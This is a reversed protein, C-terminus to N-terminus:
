HHNVTPTTRKARGPVEYNPDPYKPTRKRSTRRLGGSDEEDTKENSTSKSGADDTETKQQPSMILLEQKVAPSQNAKKAVVTKTPSSRVCGIASAKAPSEVVTKSQQLIKAESRVVVAVPPAVKKILRASKSEEPVLLDVSKKKKAKLLISEYDNAIEEFFTSAIDPLSSVGEKISLSESRVAGNKGNRLEKELLEPLKKQETLMLLFTAIFDDYNHTRRANDVRYKNRKDKEECLNRECQEIETQLKSLMRVLDKPAYKRYFQMLREADIESEAPVTKEQVNSEPDATVPDPRDGQSNSFSDLLAMQNSTFKFMFLSQIRDNQPSDEDAEEAEDEDGSAIPSNFESGVESSTDTSSGTSHPSAPMSRDNDVEDCTQTDMTPKISCSEPRLEFSTKCSFEPYKCYNHFEYPKPLGVPRCMSQVTQLLFSRSQKLNQLKNRNAIRRDPVVAMLSYRIDECNVSGDNTQGSNQQPIRQLIIQRFKESFRENSGIPGHDIPFKKLGDLEYVRNNIAVFSVFHFSDTASTRSLGNGRSSNSKDSNELKLFNFM